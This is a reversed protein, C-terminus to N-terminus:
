LYLVICHLKLLQYLQQIEADQQMVMLRRYILTIVTTFAVNKNKYKDQTYEELVHRPRICGDEPM